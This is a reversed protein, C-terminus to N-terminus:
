HQETKYKKKFEDEIMAVVKDLFEDNITLTITETEKYITIEYDTKVYSLPKVKFNSNPFYSIIELMKYQYDDIVERLMENEEQLINNEQRLTENEEQLINNESKLNSIIRNKEEAVKKMLNIMAIEPFENNM